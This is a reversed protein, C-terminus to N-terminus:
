KRFDAALANPHNARAEPHRLDYFQFHCVTCHYLPARLVFGLLLRVPNSTM